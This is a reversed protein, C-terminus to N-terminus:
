LVNNEPPLKGMLADALMKLLFTYSLMEMM